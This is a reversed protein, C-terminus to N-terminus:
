CSLGRALLLLLLLLGRRAEAFGFAGARRRERRAKGESVREENFDSVLDRKRRRRGGQSTGV